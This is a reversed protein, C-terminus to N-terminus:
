MANGEHDLPSSDVQWPLPCLNSGQDPLDLHQLAASGMCWSLQAWVGLSHFSTCVTSASQLLLLRLDAERQFLFLHGRDRGRPGCPSVHFLKVRFHPRIIGRGRGPVALYPVGTYKELKLSRCLPPYQPIVSPSLGRLSTPQTPGM